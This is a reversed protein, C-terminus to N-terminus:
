FICKPRKPEDKFQQNALLGVFIYGNITRNIFSPSAPTGWLKTVKETKEVSQVSM